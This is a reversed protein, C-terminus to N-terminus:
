GPNSVGNLLLEIQVFKDAVRAPNIQYHCAQLERAPLRQRIKAQNIRSRWATAGHLSRHAKFM